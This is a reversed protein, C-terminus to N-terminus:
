LPLFKCIWTIFTEMIKWESKQKLFLLLLLKNYM